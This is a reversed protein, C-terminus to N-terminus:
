AHVETPGNECRNNRENQEHPEELDKRAQSRTDSMFGDGVSRKAKLSRRKGEAHNLRGRKAEHKNEAHSEKTACVSRQALGKGNSGNTKTQDDCRKNRAKTKLQWERLKAVHHLGDRGHRFLLKFRLHVEQVHM